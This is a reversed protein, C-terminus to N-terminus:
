KKGGILELKKAAVLQAFVSGTATPNSKRVEAIANQEIVPNNLLAERNLAVPATQAKTKNIKDSRLTQLQEPTVQFNKNGLVDVTPAAAPLTPQTGFAKISQFMMPQGNEDLIPLRTEPDLLPELTYETPKNPKPPAATMAKLRETYSSIPVSQKRGNTFSVVSWGITPDFIINDTPGLLGTNRLQQTTQAAQAMLTEPAEKGTLLSLSNLSTQANVLRAKNLESSQQFPLTNQQGQIQQTLLDSQNQSAVLTADATSQRQPLLDLESNTQGLTLQQKAPVLNQANNLTNTSNQVALAANNQAIQPVQPLLFKANQTNFAGRLSTSAANGLIQDKSAQALTGVNPQLLDAAAVLRQSELDQAALRGQGGAFFEANNQLLRDNKVANVFDRQNDQEAARQGEVFSGLPFFLM